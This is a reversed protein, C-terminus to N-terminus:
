LRPLYQETALLFAPSLFDQGPGQRFDNKRQGVGGNASEKGATKGGSIREVTKRQKVAHRRPM